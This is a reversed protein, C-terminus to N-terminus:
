CATVFLALGGLSTEKYREHMDNGINRMTEVATDFSVIHGGDGSLSLRAATIAKIAGVGNREICPIQVLGMVPDCVLGLHHELAIEAANEIQEPTGGLVATYGAAAMASASGIEAQCGLDAGSISANRKIIAGVAAATLLFDQKKGHEEPTTDDLWFKLVAPVIGAAGNTPATVVKAGMANEENVAVAYAILRDHASFPATPNQQAAQFLKFARRKVNLGGPLTGETTLGRSICAMMEEYISDLQIHIDMSSRFTRENAFMMDSISMQNQNAMELMQTATRFGFPVNQTKIPSTGNRSESLDDETLVAGGGISVYTQHLWISGDADRAQLSLTNPHLKPKTDKDFLIGDSLDFEFQGFDPNHGKRTEIVSRLVGDALEKDFAEPTLGCLGWIVANDSAHGRGTHALSGFLTVAITPNSVGMEALKSAFRNAAVMPGMTHSSSPGIGIKFIDFVSSYTVYMGKINRPYTLFDPM